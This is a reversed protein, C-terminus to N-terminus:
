TEDNIHRTKVYRLWPLWSCLFPPWTPTGFWEPPLQVRKKHESEKPEIFKCLQQDGRSHFRVIWTECFQPNTPQIDGGMGPGNTREDLVMTKKRTTEIRGDVLKANCILNTVSYLDSAHAVSWYLVLLITHEKEAKLHTPKRHRSRLSPHISQSLPPAMATFWPSACFRDDLM